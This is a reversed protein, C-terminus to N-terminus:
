HLGQTCDNPHLNILTPKTLCKKNSLSVCKIHSSANVVSTLLGIFIKLLGLCQKINNKIM